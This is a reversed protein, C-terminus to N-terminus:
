KKKTKSSSVHERVSNELAMKHLEAKPRPPRNSFAANVDIYKSRTYFYSGTVLDTVTGYGATFPAELVLFLIGKATKGKFVVRATRGKSTLELENNRGVNIEVAPHLYRLREKSKQKGDGAPPADILVTKKVEIEQGNHKVRIDGAADVLFLRRKNFEGLYM